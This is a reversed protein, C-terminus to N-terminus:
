VETIPRHRVKESLLRVEAAAPKGYVCYGRDTAGAEKEYLRTASWDWWGVGDVWANDIVHQVFAEYWLRQSENHQEGGFNWDNPMYESGRRSPCGCEMFIFPKNFRECVKRIRDFQETLKDIPYYGSSSVYDLCDWWRIHDEQYKDCNYTVIGSYRKRVGKVLERWENDRQNTGVMECGVCLMECDLEQALESLSWVFTQYNNFWDGWTPETPVHNDFFRIYARWYGDRCNVMAKLILRKGLERTRAAVRRVDDFSMVDPTDFDVKVSYAHDQRAAVPLLVTDCGTTELMKDLSDIWAPSDTFGRPSGHGFTCANFFTM